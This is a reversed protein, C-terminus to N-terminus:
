RLRREKEKAREAISMQDKPITEANELLQGLKEEIATLMQLTNLNAETEGVCCHYVEKVKHSLTDLTKDQPCPVLIRLDETDLSKDICLYKSATLLM